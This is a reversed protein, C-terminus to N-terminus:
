YNFTFVIPLYTYGSSRLFSEPLPEFPSVRQVASLCFDKLIQDGSHELIKADRVRGDSMIKFYIVTKNGFLNGGSYTFALYPLWYEEVKDKMKKFYAGLEYRSANFSIEGFRQVDGDVDSSTNHLSSGGFGVSGKSSPAAPKEKQEERLLDDEEQEPPRKPKQSEHLIKENEKLKEQAREIKKQLEKIKILYEEKLREDAESEEVKQAKMVTPKPARAMPVSPKVAPRPDAGKLSQRPIGALRGVQKGPGTKDLQPAELDSKAPANRQDKAVTSKDSILNSKRAPKEDKLQNDPSEVFTFSMASRRQLEELRSLEPAPFIAQLLFGERAAALTSAHLVFSVAVANAFTKNM